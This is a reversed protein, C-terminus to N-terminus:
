PEKCIEIINGEPDSIEFFEAGGSEQIPGPSAGKGNLQTHAKKLNTCFILPHDNTREYEASQVEARNSLGITPEDLGPLRLAVDSPLQSDWDGPVTTEKCDFVRIWWEKELAVNACSLFLSDTYFKPM